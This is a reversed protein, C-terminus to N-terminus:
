NTQLENISLALERNGLRATRAANWGATLRRYHGMALVLKSWSAPGTTRAIWSELATVQEDTYAVLANGPRTQQWVLEVLLERARAESLRTERGHRLDSIYLAVAYRADYERGPTGAPGLAVAEAASFVSDLQYLLHHLPSSM